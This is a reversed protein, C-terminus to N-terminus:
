SHHLSPPWKVNRFEANRFKLGFSPEHTTSLFLKVNEFRFGYYRLIASIRVYQIYLLSIKRDCFMCYINLGICIVDIVCVSRLFLIHLYYLIHKIVHGTLQRNTFDFANKLCYNSIVSTKPCIRRYLIQIGTTDSWRATTRSDRSSFGFVSRALPSDTAGAGPGRRAAPCRLVSPQFCRELPGRKPFCCM